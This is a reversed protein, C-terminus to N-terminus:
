PRIDDHEIVEAQFVHLFGHGVVGASGFEFGRAVDGFGSEGQNGLCSHVKNRNACEGLMALCHIQRHPNNLFSLMARIPVIM